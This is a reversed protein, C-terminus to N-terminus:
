IAYFIFRNNVNPKQDRVSTVKKDDKKSCISLSFSRSNVDGLRFKFFSLGLSMLIATSMCTCGNPSCSVPAKDDDLSSLFHSRTGSFYCFLWSEQLM